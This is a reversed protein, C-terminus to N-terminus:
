AGVEPVSFIRAATAGVVASFSQEDTSILDAFIGPRALYADARCYPFNSAWMVRQAGLSSLAFRCLQALDAYPPGTRSVVEFGGMKIAVNEWGQLDRVFGMAERSSPDDPRGFHDVVVPSGAAASAVEWFVPWAPERLHVDLVLGCAAAAEAAEVGQATTGADLHVRVGSMGIQKLSRVEDAVQGPAVASTDLLGVAAFRGDKIASVLIRHDRGYVVPQVLVAGAVRAAAMATMLKALSAEQVPFDAAPIAVDIGPDYVHAHSDIIIAM